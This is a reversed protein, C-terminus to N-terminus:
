VVPPKQFHWKYWGHLGQLLSFLSFVVVTKWLEKKWHGTSFSLSPNLKCEGLGGM